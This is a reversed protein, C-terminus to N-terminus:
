GGDAVNLPLRGANAPAAEPTTGRVLAVSLFGEVDYDELIYPLTMFIPPTTDRYPEFSPTLRWAATHIGSDTVPQSAGLLKRMEIKNESRGVDSGRAAYSSGAVAM